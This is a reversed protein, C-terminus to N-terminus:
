LIIEIRIIINLKNLVNNIINNSLSFFKYFKKQKSTLIM